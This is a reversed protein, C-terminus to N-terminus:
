SRAKDAIRKAKAILEDANHIKLAGPGCNSLYVVLNNPGGVVSPFILGQVHAAILEGAVAM